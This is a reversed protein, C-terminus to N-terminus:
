LNFVADLTDTKFKAVIALVRINPFALVLIIEAVKM